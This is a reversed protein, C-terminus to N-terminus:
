DKLGTYAVGQVFYRQFFLLLLLPLLTALTAMAMIDNWLVRDLGQMLQLGLSITYKSQDRLYLLPRMFDGWSGVISFIAVSVLAPKCLPMIIRAWIYPERCGDLRSSDLLDQPIGMMFQRMLFIFFPWGLFAPAILPLFTNIWRLKTFIVYLPVLTVSHPLMMTAIMVGFIASKGPFQLFAFPYAVFSASLLHGVLISVSIIATNLFFRPINMYNVLGNYYNVLNITKPIVIPPVTNIEQITQVSTKVMWFFPVIAVLCALIIVAHLVVKKVPVEM